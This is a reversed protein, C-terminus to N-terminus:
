EEGHWVGQRWVREMARDAEDATRYDQMIVNGEEDALILLNESPHKGPVRELEDDEEPDIPRVTWSTTEFHVEDASRFRCDHQFVHDPREAPNTVYHAFVLRNLQHRRVLKLFLTYRSEWPPAPPVFRSGILGRITGIFDM